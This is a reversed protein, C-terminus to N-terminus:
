EIIRFSPLYGGPLRPTGGRGAKTFSSGSEPSRNVCDPQLIDDPNLLSPVDTEVGGAFTVLPDIRVVGQVGFDSSATVSTVNEFYTGTSIDIRGGSGNVANASIQSHDLILHPADSVRINGGNMNAEAVIASNGIQIIDQARIDINGGSAGASATVLANSLTIGGNSDIRINGADARSSRVGIEGHSMILDGTILAVGGANGGGTASSSILGGSSIRTSNSKVDVTGAGGSGLSEAGIQGGNRIILSGGNVKVVVNGGQGSSNKATSAVIGSRTTVVSPDASGQGSILIDKASVTVDGANGGGFTAASILGGGLLSLSGSSKVTVDGAKGGGRVLETDSGIGTFSGKGGRDIYISQATSQVSGANGTGRSEASIRAGDLIVLDRSATALVSGGNGSSNLLTSAVIGYEAGTGPGLIRIDRASVILDGANGKGGADATVLGGSIIIDGTTTIELKGADNLAASVGIQSNTVLLKQTNITIGGARGTGQNISEIKGGHTLDIRDAFMTVQGAEGAQSARASIGAGSDITIGGNTVAVNVSGGNGVGDAKAAIEGNGFLSISEAATVRVNGGNGSSNVGTSALIASDPSVVFPSASGSGSIVINRATVTVDGAAGSDFAAASILGGNRLELTDTAVLVTGATGADGADSGIGTFFESGARDVLIRPSEVQISGGHGSGFSSSDILGGGRLEISDRASVAIDGGNGARYNVAVIGTLFDNNASTDAPLGIIKISGTSINIKGAAGSDAAIASITGANGISINGPISIAINGGSGNSFSTSGIGLVKVGGNGSIELNSASVAIDGAPASGITFSQVASELISLKGAVAVSIGIAPKTEGSISGLFSGDTIRVSGSSSLTLDAPQPSNLSGFNLISSRIEMDGGHLSISTDAGGTFINSSLIELSGTSIEQGQPQSDLTVTRVGNGVAAIHVSGEAYLDAGDLTVTRAVLSIDSRSDLFSSVTVPAPASRNLFGFSEIPASTLTVPGNPDAHFTQGDTFSISDGAVAHFSGRIDLAADNGFLIGSPNLLYLSVGQRGITLTGNIQSANGGTVRAIVNTTGLDTGFVATTSEPVSFESFSHFLNSGVRTGSRSLINYRSGSLAVSGAPGLTGDHAIPQAGVTVAVGLFIFTARRM